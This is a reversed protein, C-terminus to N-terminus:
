IDMDRSRFAELLNILEELTAEDNIGPDPMNTGPAFKEPDLLFQKLNQRTWYGQKTKLGTSYNEYETSGIESDFILALSPANAHDGPDISHCQRCADITTKIRSRLQEEEITKVLYDDVLNDTFPKGTLFILKESDTWLILRGDTHQHVYRIREGIEIQESFMVRNEKIRIHFLSMSKLSGMLLDGDWSEHFGDILTLNSIAVSPLWSFTPETFNEHRGYSQSTSEPVPLKSYQTGLTEVPWGYNKGEEIRNLEDGGRLGHEVIWLSGAQDLVVGQPNRIGSAVVHHERSELDIGIIKGYEMEPNQAIAKHSYVGDWSYDGSGLYLTSPPQFAMRGGAPGGNLATMMSKFPLCPKTRYLIDWDDAEASLQNVSQIDSALPLIAITNRYCNEVGDFETYSIALGRNNGSEYFLIDNYRHLGFEHNLDKFQESEAARLYASYGNDPTIINTESVEDASRASFVQGDWSLLLVADGFTTLGGGNGGPRIRDGLDTQNSYLRLFISDYYEPAEPEATQEFFRGFLNLEM